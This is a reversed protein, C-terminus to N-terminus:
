NLQDHFLFYNLIYLIASLSKLASHPRIQEAPPQISNCSSLPHLSTIPQPALVLCCTFKFILLQIMIGADLVTTFPTFGSSATGRSEGVRRFSMSPMRHKGPADHM